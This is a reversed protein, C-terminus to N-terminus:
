FTLLHLIFINTQSRKFISHIHIIGKIFNCFKLFLFISMTCWWMGLLIQAHMKGCALQFDGSLAQKFTLKSSICIAVEMKNCLKFKSYHFTDVIKQPSQKLCLHFWQMFIRNEKVYSKQFNEFLELFFMQSLAWATNGRTLAGPM